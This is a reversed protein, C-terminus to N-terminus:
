LLWGRTTLEGFLEIVANLLEPTQEENLPNAVVNTFLPVFLEEFYTALTGSGEPHSQEWFSLSNIIQLLGSYSSLRVGANPEKTLSRVLPRLAIDLRQKQKLLKPINECFVSLFSRWSRFAQLQVEPSSHIFGSRVVDLLRNLLKASKTLTREGLLLLLFSWIKLLEVQSAESPSSTEM